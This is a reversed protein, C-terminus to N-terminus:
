PNVQLRLEDLLDSAIAGRAGGRAAAAGARAHAMVAARAALAPTLRQAM